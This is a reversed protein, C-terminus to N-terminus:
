KMVFDSVNQWGFDDCYFAKGERFCDSPSIIVIDSVSLSRGAFHNPRMGPDNFEHFIIDLLKTEPVESNDGLCGTWTPVYDKIDLSEAVKQSFGRFCNNHSVPLQFITFIM